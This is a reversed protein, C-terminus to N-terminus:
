ELFRYGSLRIIKDISDRAQDSWFNHNEKTTVLCLTTIANILKDTEKKILQRDEKELQSMNVGQETNYNKCGVTFSNSFWM